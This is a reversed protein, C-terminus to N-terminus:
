LNDKIREIGNIIGKRIMNGYGDHPLSNVFSNALDYNNKAESFKKLDEYGKAINLYLSPLISKASEDKIKLAATLAIEDWKLKDAFNEQHRAVYHASTFKECDTSSENWAKTFVEFAEQKKGLGEFEMGKACLKVIKNDPDFTM